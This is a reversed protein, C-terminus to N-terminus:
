TQGPRTQKRLPRGGSEAHDPKKNSDIQHKVAGRPPSARPKRAFEQYRLTSSATVTPLIYCPKHATPPSLFARVCQSMTRAYADLSSTFRALQKKSSFEHASTAVITASVTPREDALNQGSPSITATPIPPCRLWGSSASSRLLSLPSSPAATKSM